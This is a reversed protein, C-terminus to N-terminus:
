KNPFKSLIRTWSFNLSACMELYNEAQAVHLGEKYYVIMRKVWKSKQFIKKLFVNIANRKWFDKVLRREYTCPSTAWELVKAGSESFQFSVQIMTKGRISWKTWFFCVRDQNQALFLITVNQIRTRIYLQKYIITVHKGYFQISVYVLQGNNFGFSTEVTRPPRWFSWSFISFWKKFLWFM